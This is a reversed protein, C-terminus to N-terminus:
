SAIALGTPIEFKTLADRSLNRLERVQGAVQVARWGLTLDAWYLEMEGSDAPINMIIGWDQRVETIPIRSQILKPAEQNYRKGHSYISLQMCMKLGGYEVTGTKLDTILKDTPEIEKGDPTILPVYVAGQPVEDLEFVRLAGNYWYCAWSSVRDPTGAVKLEDILVLEEMHKISFFETGRKYVDMDLIDEFSVDEPLDEGLDILESLGHKFTGKKSKENAGGKDKAVEARRNLWDKDEKLEPDKDLVGRLLDPELAVGILTMRNQWAMIQSKDELVDIYTTVRSYSRLVEGPKAEDKGCRKCKVTNGPRKESPVRGGDCEPVPCALRIRPREKKDRLVKDDGGAERTGPVPPSTKPKAFTVTM